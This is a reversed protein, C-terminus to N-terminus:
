MRIAIRKIEHVNPCTIIIFIANGINESGKNEGYQGDEPVKGWDQDNESVAVGLGTWIQFVERGDIWQIRRVM